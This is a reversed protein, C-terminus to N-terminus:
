PTVVQRTRRAAEVIGAQVGYHKEIQGYTVDIGFADEIAGPYCTWGDSSIEPAGLVRARAGLVEASLIEGRLPTRTSPATSVLVIM